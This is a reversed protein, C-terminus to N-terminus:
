FADKEEVGVFEDRTVQYYAGAKVVLADDHVDGVGGVTEEGEFDGHPFEFTIKDGVEVDEFEYETANESM